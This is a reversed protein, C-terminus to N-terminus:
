PTAPASPKAAPAPPPAAAPAAAAPEAAPAAAPVPKPPPTKPLPKGLWAMCYRAFVSDKGAALADCAVYAEKAQAGVEDLLARRRTEFEDHALKAPNEAPPTAPPTSTSAPAGAPPTAPAPAPASAAAWESPPKMADLADHLESLMQAKRASAAVLWVEPAPELAEIKAYEKVADDIGRQRQKVWLDVRKEFYRKVKVPDADGDYPAIEMAEVKARKAEALHFLAEGFAFNMAALRADDQKGLQQQLKKSAGAFSGVAKRYGATARAEDGLMHHALASMVDAHVRLDLPGRRIADKAAEIEDVVKKWHQEVIAAQAAALEAPPAPRAVDAISPPPLPAPPAAEAAPQAAVGPAPPAQPAVPGPAQAQPPEPPAASSCAVAVVVWGVALVQKSM